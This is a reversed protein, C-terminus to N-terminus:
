KKHLQNNIEKMRKIECRYGTDDFKTVTFIGNDETLTIISNRTQTQLVGLIKKRSPIISRNTENHMDLAIFLEKIDDATFKTIGYSALIVAIEQIIMFSPLLQFNIIAQESKCYYEIENMNLKAFDLM